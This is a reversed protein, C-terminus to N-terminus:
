PTSVRRRRMRIDRYGVRRGTAEDVVVPRFAEGSDRFALETPPQQEDDGLLAEGFAWMAALVDWAAAGSDTLRYEYRPPRTEYQERRILGAEILRKLRQSLVARSAGLDAQLDDFRRTGAMVDRLILPTWRDALLETVRAIPCHENEFRIGTM